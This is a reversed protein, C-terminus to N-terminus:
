PMAPLVVVVRKGMVPPLCYGKSSCAMYTVALDVTTTAAPTTVNIPLRLTVPGDPYIPFPSSFGEFQRLQVPRDANLPGIAQISPQLPVELLTPRGAREIGGPPLDKSYVHSDPNEPTYTGALLLTGNRDRELAIAVHVGNETFTTLSQIRAYPPVPAYDSSRQAMYICGLCITAAILAVMLILRRPMHQLREIM